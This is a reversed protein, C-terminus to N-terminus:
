SVQLGCVRVGHGGNARICAEARRLWPQRAGGFNGMEMWITEAAAFIRNRVEDVTDPLPQNNYVLAKM